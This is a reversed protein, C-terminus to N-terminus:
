LNAKRDELPEGRLTLSEHNYTIIRHSADLRAIEYHQVRGRHARLLPKILGRGALKSLANQVTGPARRAQRAILEVSCYRAIRDTDRADRALVILVRWETDPLDPAHELVDEVIRGSM